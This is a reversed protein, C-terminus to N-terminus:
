DFNLTLPVRMRSRQPQGNKLCPEWKKQTLLVALEAQRNFNQNEGFGKATIISGDKEIIFIVSCQITGKGTVAESNFNNIVEKKFADMGDPYKPLNDVEDDKPTILNSDAIPYSAQLKELEKQYEQDRKVERDYLERDKKLAMKAQKRLPVKSVQDLYENKIKQIDSEYKEKILRFGDTQQSFYFNLIFLLLFSCYKKM